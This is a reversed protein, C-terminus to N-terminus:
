SVQLFEDEFRKWGEANLHRLAGAAPAGGDQLVPVPQSAGAALTALFERLRGLEAEMWSRSEGGLTLAKLEEPRTPMLAFAWGEAFLSERMLHPREALAQNLATIEGSIPTRVTLRREGEELVLIPDGKKVTEKEKRLFSIRPKELLRGLFDDLGLQIRGSPFLNAWTHSKAFFVGKPIRLPYTGPVELPALQRAAAKARQRQIAWDVSLFVIITAVVLMATM